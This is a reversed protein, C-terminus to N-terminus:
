DEAEADKPPKGGTAEWHDSDKAEDASIPVVTENPVLPTGDPLQAEFPAVWRANVHKKAM